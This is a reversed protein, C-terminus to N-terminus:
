NGAKKRERALMAALKKGFTELYVRNIDPRMEQLAKLMFAHEVGDPGQGYELFRWYFPSARVTSAVTTRDGRERKPKIGRKLDGGSDSAPAAQSASKALQKAVDQVTARMLNKAHKPAIAGLIQNVQAIGTVQIGTKM